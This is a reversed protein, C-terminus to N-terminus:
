KTEGKTTQTNQKETVTCCHAECATLSPTYEQRVVKDTITKASTYLFEGM